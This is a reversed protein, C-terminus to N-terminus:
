ALPCGLPLIGPSCSSGTCSRNPSRLRCRALLCPAYTGAHHDNVISDRYILNQPLQIETTQVPVATGYRYCRVGEARHLEAADIWALLQTPPLTPQGPMSRTMHGRSSGEPMLQSAVILKYIRKLTVRIAPDGSVETAADKKPMSRTRGM